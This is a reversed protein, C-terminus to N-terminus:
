DDEWLLLKAIADIKERRSLKALSLLQSQDSAVPLASSLPKSLNALGRLEDHDLEVGMDFLIKAAELTDKPNSEDIAFLFKLQCKPWEPHFVRNYQIIPAVLQKTLTEQLSTSDRRVLDSKTERHLDAVGSGLGTGKTESSLNQGIIYTEIKKDFYDQVARLMFELGVGPPEKIEFSPGQTDGEMPRPLLLAAGQNLNEANKMAAQESTTNGETYYFVAVGSGFRQMADQLWGLADNKYRWAWYVRTRIGLGNRYGASFFDELAADRIQHKHIVYYNILDAGFPSRGVMDPRPTHAAGGGAINKAKNLWIVRGESTMDIEFEDIEDFWGIRLGIGGDVDFLFKDGHIPDWQNVTIARQGMVDAWDYAHGVGSRGHFTAMLLQEKYELFTPIADIIATVDKAMQVQAADSKDPPEIHWKLLSTSRIREDLPESITPDQLMVEAEERSRRVAADPNLYINRGQSSYLRMLFASPRPIGPLGLNPALAFVGNPNKSDLRVVGSEAPPVPGRPRITRPLVRQLFNPLAM